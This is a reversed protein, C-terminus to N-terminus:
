RALVITTIYGVSKDSATDTASFRVVYMGIRARDGHKSAGNWYVVGESSSVINKAPEYILRGMLDYIQVSVMASPYPVKYIIAIEDDIGDGNPSFPNPEGRIGPEEYSDSISVSNKYGPTGGSPDTSLRWNDTINPNTYFIRETSIGESINWNENYFLSDITKGTPDKLFIADSGNNLSPFNKLVITNEPSTYPFNFISSDSAIVVYANKNIAIQRQIETPSDVNEDCIMWRDFQINNGPNFFEIFEARAGNEAIQEGPIALFESLLLDGTFFSTRLEIELTDNEPAMDEAWHLWARIRHVGSELSGINIMMSDSMGAKLLVINESIIERDNEGVVIQAPSCDKQGCNSFWCHLIVDSSSNGDYPATTLSDISLDYIKPTVSNIRGPTAGEIDTSPLWFQPNESPNDPLMKEMSIGSKIMWSDDYGLSDIVDGILDRIIIKDAINGLSLWKDPIIVQFSNTLYIDFFSSDRAIILYNDPSLTKEHQLKVRSRSDALWWGDVCVETAVNNFIEVFEVQGDDPVALFENVVISKAPYGVLLDSKGDNNESNEDTEMTIVATYHRRGSYDVTFQGSINVTSDPEIPFINDARWVIRDEDPTVSGDVDEYISLSWGDSERSGNNMVDISFVASSNLSITSDLFFFSKDIICIDNQYKLISNKEGPTAGAPDVSGGWNYQNLASANPNKREISVGTEGGWSQQFTVIDIMHGTGDTIYLSDSSNNLTPFTEPVILKGSFQPYAQQFDIQAAVICFDDAGIVFRASVLCRWIGGADRFNWRNLDIDGGTTNYLEFWESEGSEPINMVENVVVSNEPYGVIMVCSDADNNVDEDGSFFVECYVEYVGGPAKEFEVTDPASMGSGINTQCYVMTDLITVSEDNNRRYRIGLYITYEAIDSLGNNRVIYEIKVPSNQILVDSTVSVSDVSLDFTKIMRSNRDGPTGGSPDQSLAWNTLVNSDRYPNIRELSIGQSYGWKNNYKLSDIVQGCLDRVVISDGANNLIPLSNECHIHVGPIDWFETITVDSSLLVYENPLLFIDDTTIEVTSSNDSIQWGALNLTDASVNLLELWEGGHEASPIYMIENIAVVGPQYQVKLIFIKTNNENNDDGTTISCVVLNKGSKFDLVSPYLVVSDGPIITLIDMYLVENQQLLSDGNTDIGLYFEANNVIERGINKINVYFEVPNGPRVGITPDTRGIGTVALDYNNIANSNRKGPTGGNINNSLTWNEPSNTDQFPNIRELSVGQRYGWERSYKLSDIVRGCLDRVVISDETNNLTPLPNKSLIQIGGIEWHDVIMSDSFFVAFEGPPLLIDESTPEVTTSNDSIKWGSLNVTDMSVNMLEIWEGGLDSKPAYMFENIALCMRKYPVDVSFRSSNNKMDEDVINIRSLLTHRGSKISPITPFLVITDLPLFSYKEAYLIEPTQLLLDSNTDIGFQIEASSVPNRGPNSVILEIEANEGPLIVKVSDRLGFGIIALDVDKRAISNMAGPTGYLILSNNWNSSNKESFLDIKEESYGAEQDPYITAASLTDGFTNMLLITSVATNALGNIGFANDQITCKYTNTSILSDYTTSFGDILYGRDLILGYAGPELLAISDPFCLSDVIGNIMLYVDTMDVPEAGVNVVEIYEDYDDAGVANFMVENLTITQAAIMNSLFMCLFCIVVRYVKKM